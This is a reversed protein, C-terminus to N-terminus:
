YGQDQTYLLKFDLTHMVIVCQVLDPCQKREGDLIREHVRGITCMRTQVNDSRTKGHTKM